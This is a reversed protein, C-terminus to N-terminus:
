LLLIPRTLWGITFIIVSVSLHQLEVFLPTNLRQPTPEISFDVVVSNVDYRGNVSVVYRNFLLIDNQKIKEQL